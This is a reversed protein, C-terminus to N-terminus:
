FSFIFNMMIPPMVELAWAALGKDMGTLVAAGMLFLVVGFSKQLATATGGSRNRRITNRFGYAILLFPSMVGVGFTFMSTVANFSGGARAALTMAAGLTAGVCPTWAIGILAGIAFQSALSDGKILAVRGAGAAGIRGFVAASVRQALLPVVLLVGIVVLLAGAASRVFEHDLGLLTGTASILFGVATFTVITGGALFLPGARHTRTASTAVIPLVPFVCPSLSAVVGAVYSLMLAM